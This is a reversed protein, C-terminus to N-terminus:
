RRLIPNILAQRTETESLSLQSAEFQLVKEQVKKILEQSTPM